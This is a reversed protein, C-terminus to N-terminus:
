SGSSATATTSKPDVCTPDSPSTPSSTGTTSPSCTAAATTTAVETATTLVQTATATVTATATATSTPAASTSTPADPTPAPASTTPAPPSSTTSPASTTTSPTSTTTTAPSPAVTSAPTTTPASPVATSATPSPAVPPKPAAPASSAAAVAPAASIPVVSADALPVDGDEVTQIVSGGPDLVLSPVAAYPVSAAASAAFGLYPAPDVYRDNIIVDFHLHCGTSWGTTGSLGIVQGQKVKEGETVLFQSQHGYATKVTPTHQIITRGGWSASVRAYVVTGDAAAHIPTGCPAALDIGTHFMPRGLLPHIRPGFPSVEDGPVPHIFLPVGTLPSVLAGATVPALNVAPFLFLGGGIASALVSGAPATSGPAAGDLGALQDRAEGVAQVADQVAAPSGAALVVSETPPRTPGGGLFPLM